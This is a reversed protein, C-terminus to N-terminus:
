KVLWGLALCVMPGVVSLLLAKCVLSLRDEDKYSGGLSLGRNGMFVSFLCSLGVAHGLGVPLVGLPVLFWAWLTKAVFGGWLVSTVVLLVFVFFVRM